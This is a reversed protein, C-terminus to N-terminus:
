IFQAILERQIDTLESIKANFVIQEESISQICPKLWEMDEWSFGYRQLWIEISDSTGYKFINVLNEARYDNTLNYYETFAAIFYPALSQGWVKDIYDYTDFLLTDYDFENRKFLPVFRKVKRNPLSQASPTFNKNKYQKCRWYVIQKLSKDKTRSFLIDLATNFIATEGSSLQRKISKSYIKMFANRISDKCTNELNFFVDVSILRGDPIINNIIFEISERIEIDKYGDVIAHPLDYQMDYRDNNIADVYEKTTDDLSDPDADLISKESLECKALIRKTFTSLNSKEVVVIGVDLQNVESSRGARGILNKLALNKTGETKERFQFAKIWVMHFPMNIGQILTSTAFCIRAYGARVFKEILARLRLPMSGHHYVIGKKILRVLLSKANPIEQYHGIFDEIETIINKAEKSSINKFYRLYHKYEKFISGNTISAKSSYILISKNDEITKALLDFDLEYHANSTHYPSFYSFKYQNSDTTEVKVFIKGVTQYNYPTSSSRAPNLKHKTIQANPNDVFPHAFVIKSCFFHKSVRRVLADFKAGRIGSETLQAEDFLFLEIQNPAFMSFLELSREPTIVFVRKKTCSTNIEDVYQLVMVDNGLQSKLKLVYEAILARSPLVIVVHKSSEKIVERLIFSKGASTPASFSFVNYQQIGSLINAQIPTIITGYEERLAEAYSQMVLGRITTIPPKKYFLGMYNLLSPEFKQFTAPHALKFHTIEELLAPKNAGSCYIQNILMELYEEDPINEYIDSFEKM